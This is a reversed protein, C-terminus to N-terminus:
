KTTSIVEKSEIEGNLINIILDKEIFELSIYKSGDKESITVKDPEGYKEEIKSIESDSSKLSDSVAFAEKGKDIMGGRVYGIGLNYWINEDLPEIQLAKEFYIISKEFNEKVLKQREKIQSDSLVSKGRKDVEKIETDLKYAIRSYANGINLNTEYDKDDMLLVDKFSEIAKEFNEQMFYLRGLNFMLDKEKSDELAKKYIEIAKESEGKLDYSYALHYLADKYYESSVYTYKASLNEKTKELFESKNKYKEKYDKEAKEWTKRNEVIKSFVPIANDYDTTRYYLLGLYVQLIVETTDLKIAQKYTEIAASDDGIQTYIYALNRYADTREPIIEIDLIFENKAEDFKGQEILTIGKNFLETYYISKQQKIENSRKDSIQLSKNFANNMEKFMKKGGYAKGMVFYAEADNPVQELAVKCQQIAKDYNSQKLYVKAGSVSSQECSSFMILLAM